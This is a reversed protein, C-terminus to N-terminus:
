NPLYNSFPMRNSWREGKSVTLVQVEKSAEHLFIPTYMAESTEQLITQSGMILQPAKLYAFICFLGIALLVVTRGHARM